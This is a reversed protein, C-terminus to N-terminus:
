LTQTDAPVRCFFSVHLMIFVCVCVCVCVCVSGAIKIYQRAM